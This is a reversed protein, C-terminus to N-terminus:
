RGRALRAALQEPLGLERMRRQTARVDYPVRHFTVTTAATDLIAYSSRPDGDRPQGVSGPNICVREEGLDVVAGDDSALVDFRGTALETIVLPIHTHGVFSYPTEQAAFHAAAAEVTVLYEWLPSRLTGHVRTYLGKREIHPLGMLFSKSEENIREATWANAKAALPNFEDRPILGVAAADHNGMVSAAATEVMRQIVADPDPGYGVGDGLHWIQEVGQTEAHSLVADLAALNSHVDSIVAVRMSPLGVM